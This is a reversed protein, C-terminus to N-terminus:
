KRKANLAVQVAKNILAATVGTPANLVLFEAIQNADTSGHLTVVAERGARGAWRADHGPLWRGGGTVGDCGCACQRPTQAKKVPKAAWYAAPDYTGCEVCGDHDGVEALGDAHENEWGGAQECYTCFLPHDSRTRGNLAVSCDACEKAAKKKTPAVGAAQEAEAVTGGNAVFVELGADTLALKGDREVVLGRKTLAAVTRHHVNAGKGNAVAAVAAIQTPNLNSSM